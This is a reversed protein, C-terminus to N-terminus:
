GAVVSLAYGIGAAVLLITVGIGAINWARTNRWPGMIEPDNALLLLFLLAPPMALTAIVNVILVITELPAGPILVVAGALATSGLMVAYFPAAERLPANLSHGRHAVEGFAYASATAITIAAVLGAEFIGLAFLAAGTPGILPALAEAFQAAQFNEASIGSHFLPAAALVCAIGFIAALIAGLATDLRAPGIDAAELGKDAVAGQQFFLMWPTVTAGIDAVMLLISGQTVGGPLPRWTLMAHGVAGWDPHAWLAVPVFVANGVALGLTIREWLAYRATAAVAAVVIASAGVALVPPIGFYGLGARIGIFETILTLLNGVLLDAMAFNGWFRGFRAYILAAHGHGTAAGVRAAMEQVVFGVAFTATIFPLFFGIGFRAGTAAYSLMSPADNEGLFVLIGPGALLWFLRARRFRGPSAAARARALLHRARTVDERIVPPRIVPPRILSPPPPQAPPIM